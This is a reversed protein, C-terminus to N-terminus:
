ADSGTPQVTSPARLVALVVLLPLTILFAFRLQVAQGLAAMASPAVLIATGSALAGLSASRAPHLGPIAVLEGLIVPYLPAVGLGAAILGTAVLAPTNAGTILLAAAATVGAGVTIVPVHRLLFSGALRGAAMGIPFTSALAAAPAPSLGTAQLRVVAWVVFCFEVAVGLVLRVWVRAVRRRAPADGGSARPTPQSRDRGLAWEARDTRPFLGSRGSARHQIVLTLMALVAPVLLVLRGNPGLADVAGIALPGIAGAASAVASVRSLRVAAQPGHLLAPTVLVVVAGGIGLLLAGSMAGFHTATMALLLAGAALLIAGARLAPEPGYRLLRPGAGAALVLGGGFAAALWSLREPAVGLDRAFLVLVAGLTSVCLGLAAQAVGVRLDARGPSRQARSSLM